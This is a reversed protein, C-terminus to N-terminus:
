AISLSHVWEYPSSTMGACACVSVLRACVCASLQGHRICDIMCPVCPYDMWLRTKQSVFSQMGYDGGLCFSDLECFSGSDRCKHTSPKARLAPEGYESPCYWEGCDTNELGVM